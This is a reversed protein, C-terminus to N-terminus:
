YHLGIGVSLEYLSIDRRWDYNLSNKFLLQGIDIGLSARVTFSSWKKPYVLVEVGGSYFGDKLNFTKNTSRNNILAFDFFPAIQCDCNFYNMIHNTFHTTFIHYPFDLNLVIASSTNLIKESPISTSDSYRQDDRIGRLRQGIKESYYYKKGKTNLYTFAYLQSTIGIKNFYDSDFLVFYNYLKSEFSIFPVFDHRQFYYQFANDLEFSSGKRYNGIWDIRSTFLNHGISATPSSLDNNLINISDKDWNFYIQSYPTYIIKGWNEINAVTLPISAIAEEKFYTTDGFIEYEYNRFAYQNFELQLKYTDFPLSLKVGTQAEWEPTPKSFNYYFVYDNTWEADFIGAKFPINFDLEAGVEFSKNDSVVPVIGYFDASMMNLSGFFNSDKAKLKPKWGENSNYSIVHPLALLHLSDKVHVLFLVEFANDTSLSDIKEWTVDIIEFARINTLERIYNNIYTEFEEQSAFITKKDISVNQELAYEKTKSISFNGSSEINYKVESIHFTQAFCFSSILLFLLSFLKKM